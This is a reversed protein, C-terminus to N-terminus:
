RTVLERLKQEFLRTVEAVSERVEHHENAFYVLAGRGTPQEGTGSTRRAKPDGDSAYIEPGPLIAQVALASVYVAAGWEAGNDDENSTLKVLPNKM